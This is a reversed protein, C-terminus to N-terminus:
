SSQKLGDAVGLYTEYVEVLKDHEAEREKRMGNPFPGIPYVGPNVPAAFPVAVAFTAMYDDDDMLMGAHGSNGQPSRIGAAIVTLEQELTDIGLNTPQGILKTVKHSAVKKVIETQIQVM